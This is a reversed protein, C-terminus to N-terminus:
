NNDQKLNTFQATSICYLRDWHGHPRLRLDAAARGNINHTRIGGPTHINTQQSHQTNDSTEAVLQDSTRLLRVSQPADKTHDLFKTFSSEMTWQPPPANKLWFFCVFLCVIIHLTLLDKVNIPGNIYKPCGSNNAALCCV